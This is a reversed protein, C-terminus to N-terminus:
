NDDISVKIRRTEIVLDGKNYFEKLYPHKLMDEIRIRKEPDFELCKVM